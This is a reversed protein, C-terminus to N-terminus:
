QKRFRRSWLVWAMPLLAWPSIPSGTLQGTEPDIRCGCGDGSGGAPRSPVPTPVTTTATATATATGVAPAEPTSTADVHLTPTATPPPTATETFTPTPTVTATPELTASPSLTATSSPTPSPPTEPTPTLGGPPKGFMPNATIYADVRTDTDVPSLRARSLFVIRSGDASISPAYSDGDAEGGASPRSILHLEGDTLDVVFVDEGPWVDDPSLNTAASQFVLFRGERDLSPSVSPANAIDGTPSRSVLRTTGLFRDRVFIQSRRGTDGDLNTARSSFAVFRGDGSLALTALEIQSPGNAEAGNSAVSVREITDNCRDRVFVDRAENRDREVLNSADSFFAVICGDTSIAPGASPGNATRVETAGLRTLTMATITGSERDLVFVDSAENRDNAVFDDSQSAFAIWRGEPSVAPPLDPVTGGGLGDNALTLISTRRSNRDFLFLDPTRNFDGTVLNNAASGFVAISGDDTLVGPFSGDNPDRGLFSISVREALLSEVDVVFVDSKGNRDSGVLNSAATLLLAVSGDANPRVFLVDADLSSGVLPVSLRIPEAPIDARSATGGCFCLLLLLVARHHVRGLWTQEM